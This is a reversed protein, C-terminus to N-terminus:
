ITTTTTTRHVIRSGGMLAFDLM